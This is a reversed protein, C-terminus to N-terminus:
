NWPLVGPCKFQIIGVVIIAIVVVAVVSGIIANRIMAGDNPSLIDCTDCTANTAGNSTSALCFLKDLDPATANLTIRRVINGGEQSQDQAGLVEKGDRKYHWTLVPILTKEAAHPMQCTFVVKEGAATVGTTCNSSCSLKAEALAIILLLCVALNLLVM